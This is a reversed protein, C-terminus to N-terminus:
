KYYNQGQAEAPVNEQLSVDWRTYKGLCFEGTKWGDWPKYKYKVMCVLLYSTDQHKDALLKYRGSENYPFDKKRERDENRKEWWGEDM